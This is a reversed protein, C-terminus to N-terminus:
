HIFANSAMLDELTYHKGTLLILEQSHYTSQSSGDRDVSIILGAETDKVTIYDQLDGSDNILLQSFDIKDNEVLNFDTWETKVNGGLNDTNDLINFVVTDAGDGLIYSYSQNPINTEIVDNGTTGFVPEAIHQEIQAKDWVTGDDFVISSLQGEGFRITSASDNFSIIILSDSQKLSIDGSSVSKLQLINEEAANDLIHISSSSTLLAKDVIYTDNGAQGQLATYVNSNGGYILTDNGSGGYLYDSGTNSVLTDDGDGGYLYDNQVGGQITDNGGLSYITSIEADAQLNDAADTGLLKGITNAEIQAKDWVTGDDFVIFSLNDKGFRITSASDNFSIIILSDSQKLSIDSSSVSKLQLTNEETANDLIHIYSSSTLLAKDIIYTDNGAQGQLATYVNSNGGYILTDNGAGGYLYDSGTNSVLTDDGDDGYLYDNQVGGQITDNGGLGYITSIEADAQLNDAADTGLLKGITNAEIQAKNWVTGDDFVISSLQGEGFHITATSDNFTIVRDASTQKLIIEDASVSKLYLTNQENTNDLIHVYSLSGLLAKDVIYTDNGAEGILGTYVNPSNGGYILTDNGSGGYLRDSDGNSILTDDGNSGYLYDNGTSGKIIQTFTPDTPKYTGSATNIITTLPQSSNGAQDTATVRYEVNLWDFKEEINVHVWAGDIKQEVFYSDSPANFIIKDTSLDYSFLNTLIPATTDPANLQLLNENGKNDTAIVKLSEGNEYVTNLIVTYHGSADAIASGIVDGAANKITVTVNAETTGQVVQGETWGGQITPQHLIPPTIDPVIVEKAETKNGSQDTATVILNEGNLYDKDLTISYNGAEDANATGVVKTEYHDVELITTPVEQTVNVNIVPVMSSSYNVTLTYTGPPLVSGQALDISYNGDGAQSVNGTLRTNLSAGSLISSYSGSLSNTSSSLNLSVHANTGTVEFSYTKSLYNTQVSESLIFQNELVTVEKYVATVQEVTVRADAETVGAVVKGAADITATLSSPATTDPAIITKPTTTNGVKDAAIANLSEGNLYAKDLTISYKGTADATGTGVVTGATNKVTVVANAETIGTVVKGSADITAILSSPATTDSAIITTAATTNGAKDAAIASLSEGNLYIKDLTVSYKGTVDATGTGVVTGVVNKVTVTANAETVGTIVKGAADITATLSSPATTDPAIITKPTTTNGVKDAAIANLSEGNLYAKDLTVSYKGTADATGTGVVTGVVNKVTVTANAETVGTIVKGAADITATLSSPATTDPAIITKPTTTNGVKDAAIANLSEGNLYAKDLTVSYKGTADATGTGVVTGVVNKVTVTANAETVGTIVKGAADITATLSSPATTDPAVIIKPVTANDANDAATVNLSEGNLYAKDLTVSYKGTVDATAIGVVIGAANKVTVVANAETVGTVVKGATDIAVTLGIPATKDDALITQITSKNGALDEASITLNEGNLYAKDLIVTYKGDNDSKATGIIKGSSDKVTVTSNAETLGTITKGNSSIAHTLTPATIDSAILEQKVTSNGATDQASVKLIEGNIYAKDLNILYTGDAGAKASGIVKGASNEVIVTAGAETLGSVAKGDKSLIKTLSAPPTQDSPASGDSGGSGSAAIAIGGLAIAAGGWLMTQSDLLSKEKLVEEKEFEEDAESNNEVQQSSVQEVPQTNPTISYSDAQIIEGSKLTIEFGNGTDRVSKINSADLTFKQGNKIFTLINQM